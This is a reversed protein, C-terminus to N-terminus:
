AGEEDLGAEVEGHCNRCLMICKDLEAKQREWKYCHGGSISFEKTAPDLHHFTLNGIYKDYGCKQCCGGKYAVAKKKLAFRRLNVNCSNCKKKTHGSGRKYTYIRGCVECKSEGESPPGSDKLIQRTNHVGFPSCELCYKRNRLYKTRGNERIRNPFSQGCKRCIPM